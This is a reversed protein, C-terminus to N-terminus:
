ENLRLMRLYNDIEFHQINKRIIRKDKDLLFMYPITRTEYLSQNEITNDFNWGHFYNKEAEHQIFHEWIHADHEVYITLLKLRGQTLANQLNQNQALISRVKRCTNCTPNHLYLLTYESAFAHLHTTDGKENIFQFDPAITGDLNKNITQLEHEYYVRRKKEINPHTLIEQLMKIYTHEVKYDSMYFGLMKELRDYFHLYSEQNIKAATQLTRVVFTDLEPRDLQYILDGYNHLQEEAQPSNFIRPDNWPFKDWYHEVLYAQMRSIDGYLAQPIQPHNQDLAILSALLYDPNNNIIENQYRALATSIRNFRATLSDTLTQLMYPPLHQASQFEKNLQEFQTNFDLFRQLYEQYTANEKNDPFQASKGNYIISLKQKKADSLIISFITTTDATISYVGPELAKQTKFVVEEHYPLAINTGYKKQWHYSQLKVSDCPTGSLKLRIELQGFGYFPLCLGMTALLTFIALKKM